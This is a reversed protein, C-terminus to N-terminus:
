SFVEVYDHLMHVLRRKIGDELNASIKVEKKDTETGLNIVKVPEENPQISKEERM